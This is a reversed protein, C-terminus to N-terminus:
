SASCTAHSTCAPRQTHPEGATWTEIRHSAPSYVSLLLFVRSRRWGSVREGVMPASVLHTRLLPPSSPGPRGWRTMTHRGEWNVGHELWCCWCCPEEGKGMSCPPLRGLSSSATGTQRFATGLSWPRHANTIGATTTHQQHSSRSGGRGEAAWATGHRLRAM